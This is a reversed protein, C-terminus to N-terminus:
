LGAEKFWRRIAKDLRAAYPWRAPDDKVRHLCDEISTQMVVVEADGLAAKWDMREEETPASTIFWARGLRKLSLDRLAENRLAFAKITIEKDNGWRIGGLQEKYDDVDIITDGPNAYTKVYTTKGSCPAGCVLTVPIGPRPLGMPIDSVRWRPRTM